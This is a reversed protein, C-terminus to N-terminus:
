IIVNFMKRRVKYVNPQPPENELRENVIYSTTLLELADELCNETYKEVGLVFYNVVIRFQHYSRHWLVVEQDARPEINKLKEPFNPELIRLM